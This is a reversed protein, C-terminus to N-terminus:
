TIYAATLMADNNAVANEGTRGCGSQVTAIMFGAHLIRKIQM